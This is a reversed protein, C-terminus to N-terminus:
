GEAMPFDLQQITMEFLMRSRILNMAEDILGQSGDASGPVGAEKLRGALAGRYEPLTWLGLMSKLGPEKKYVRDVINVDFSKEYLRERLINDATSFIVFQLAAQSENVNWSYRARCKELGSSIARNVSLATIELNEMPTALFAAAAQAVHDAGAEGVICYSDEYPLANAGCNLM